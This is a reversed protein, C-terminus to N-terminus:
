TSRRRTVRSRPTASRLRLREALLAAGELDTDPLLVAFEEGGLRVPLDVDRVTARMIEAFARLAIDGAEHGYTDNVKKFDDLDSLM